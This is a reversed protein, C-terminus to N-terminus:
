KKTNYNLVFIFTPIAVLPLLIQGEPHLVRGVLFILYRELLPTAYRQFRCNEVQCNFIPIYCEASCFRNLITKSLPVRGVLVILYQGLLPLVRRFSLKPTYNFTDPHLVRGVLFILYRELLPTACGGFRCNRPIISIDPHLAAQYRVIM